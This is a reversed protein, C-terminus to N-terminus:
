KTSKGEKSIRVRPFCDSTPTGHSDINDTTVTVKIVDATSNIAKRLAIELFLAVKVEM